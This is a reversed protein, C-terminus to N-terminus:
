AQPPSRSSYFLDIGENLRLPEVFRFIGRYILTPLYSIYVATISLSSSILHCAPCNHGGTESVETHFFNIGCTIATFIVLCALIQIRNRRGIM